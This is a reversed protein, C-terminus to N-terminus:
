NIAFCYISGRGGGQSVTGMQFNTGAANQGCGTAHSFSWSTNNTGGGARNSHGNTTTGTNSTWDSCTGMASVTGDINSGTLIDHLVAPQASPVVAGTEDLPVNVDNLPWTTESAAGTSPTTMVNVTGPTQAHLQEVSNGIVVGAFNRWPGTGIRDRANETSTSLYAHWTKAALAPNAATALTTCLADAGMIGGFNGGDGSGRSTVFFSMSGSAVAGADGAVVPPMAGMGAAGAAGGGPVNGTGGGQNLAPNAPMESTSGGTNGAAATAGGSGGASTSSSGGTSGAPQNANTGM